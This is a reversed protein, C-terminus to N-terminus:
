ALELLDLALQGLLLRRAVEVDDGGVLEHEVVLVQDVGRDAVDLVLQDVGLPRQVLRDAVDAAHEVGDLVVVEALAAAVDVEDTLADQAVEQALVGPRELRRGVRDDDGVVQRRGVGGLEVLVRHGAEDGVGAALGRVGRDDGAGVLQRRHDAELVDGLDHEVSSRSITSPAAPTTITL